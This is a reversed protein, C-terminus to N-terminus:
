QWIASIKLAKLNFVSCLFFFVKPYRFVLHKTLLISLAHEPWGVVMQPSLVHIWLWSFLVKLFGKKAILHAHRLTPRCPPWQVTHLFHEHLGSSLKQGRFMSNHIAPPAPFHVWIRGGCSCRTTKDGTGVRWGWLLCRLSSFRNERSDWLNYMISM